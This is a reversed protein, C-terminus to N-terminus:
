RQTRAPALDGSSIQYAGVDPAHWCARGRFDTCLGGWDQGARRLISGAAPRFDAATTTGASYFTAAGAFENTAQADAEWAALSGYNSAGYVWTNAPLSQDTYWHDNNFTAASGTTVQSFQTLAGLATMSNNKVVISTCNTASENDILIGYTPAAGSWYLTNQAYITQDSGKCRLGNTKPNIIVNGQIWSPGVGGSVTQMKSIVGIGADIITNGRVIGGRNFGLMAGHTTSNPGYLTNGTIQGSNTQNDGASTADAGIIALYGGNTLNYGVNNRIIGGTSSVAADATIRYIASTRSGPTGQVTVNNNQIVANAVNKISIGFHEGTSTLTPDLTVTATVNSVSATVGGATAKIDILGNTATTHKAITGTAGNITVGGTALATANVYSRTGVAGSASFTCNTLNTTAENSSVYVHYFIPDVFRCSTCNVTYAGTTDEVWLSYNSTGVNGDFVIGTFSTTVGAPGQLRAVATSVAGLFTVNGNIEARFDIGKSLLLYSSAGLETGTYTGDNIYIIDNTAATTVANSVTLKATAKSTGANADNGVVYGNTATKSVYYTTAWAPSALLLTCLVFLLRM